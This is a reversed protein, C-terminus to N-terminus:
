GTVRFLIWFFPFIFGGSSLCDKLGRSARERSTAPFIYSVALGISLTFVYGKAEELVYHSKRQLSKGM